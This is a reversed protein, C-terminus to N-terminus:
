ETRLATVPNITMARLAPVACALLAVAALVGTVSGLTIPDTTGVGYLQSSMLPTLALAAAMGIGIGLLALSMGQRVVLRLVTSPEAGLALRIGMEQTRESVALAMVGYVGVAALALALVGFVAALIVIFRRESVAGARIEDGTRIDYVSLDKDISKLEARVTAAIAAPDGATRMSIFPAVPPSALYYLYVESAPPRDLASHHIDGVVGVVTNWTTAGPGMRIRKGVPDEAGWLRRAMTQNVIVVPPSAPGDQDTFNRGRLIPMGMAEFYRHVARRFDVEYTENPDRGEMVVNSTVNSSALPLRTTGGAAVVGPLAELRAFLRQYFDRRADPTSVTGPLTMQLTLLRGSQFGADVATLAVFSRVLLGAGFTLVVALAIEAAVLASRARRGRWGGSNGRGTEKLSGQVDPQAAAFAPVLGVVVGTVLAVGITFVVVRWDPGIAQLRPIDSPAFAAFAGTAWRVLVLGLAAGVSSLLLTETVTQRLLRSRGAGLAARVAMEKQRGVSRALLLNAVNVCALLLVFGVGAALLLLAARSRGVVQAHLPVVNALLGRNSDPFTQELARAIANAEENAQAATAGPALRGIVALFHVSRVPRGSADNFRTAPDAPTLATWFDPELRTTFGTPGLMGKFPFSFDPPMVGVITVPRQDLVVRRGIVAPDRGFRRTWFGDSLVVADNVDTPLLARGLAASRRLLSFMGPTVVSNTVQETGADTQLPIATLFSFLAEVQRMTKAAAKYDLFNAPSTPYEPQGERTNDTWIMVLEAADEYPLPKLLVGNIISFISSTGGIGLALALVALGSFLPARVFLRIAYRLDMLLNTAYHGKSPNDGRPVHGARAPGPADYVGAEAPDPREDLWRRTASARELAANWGVDLLTRMLFALRAAVGRAAARRYRDRFAERMAQGYRARFRKPFALLLAAYVRETM